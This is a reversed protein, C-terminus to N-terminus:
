VQTTPLTIKELDEVTNANLLAPQITADRLKQKAIKIKNQKAVDGSEVARMFELDLQELLPKRERRLNNKVIEKAKDINISIM